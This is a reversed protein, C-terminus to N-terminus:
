PSFIQQYYDLDINNPANFNNTDILPTAPDRFTYLASHGDAFTMANTNGFHNAAPWDWWIDHKTPDNAPYCVWSGRNAGRNDVEDLIMLRQGPGVIMGLTTAPEILWGSTGGCYNTFSYSRIYDRPEDPCLYLDLDGLYPWLKGKKLDDPVEIYGMARADPTTWSHPLGINCYSGVLKSYNDSAYSTAAVALQRQHTLCVAARSSQIARSMSPMLIALLLAIISVVVFMEIITFGVRRM